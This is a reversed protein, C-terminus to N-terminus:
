PLVVQMGADVFPDLSGHLSVIYPVKADKAHKYAAFQPFLFLSHLHVLDYLNMQRGLARYLSPSFAIRYPWRAPFFDVRLDSTGAPLESATVPHHKRALVTGSMDTTFIDVEVGAEEIGPSMEVVSIAPGGWRVALSPIVRLVRM